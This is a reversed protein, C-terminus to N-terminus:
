LGHREFERELTGLNLEVWTRELFSGDTRKLRGRNFCLHKQGEELGDRTVQWSDGVQQRQNDDTVRERAVVMTAESPIDGKQVSRIVLEDPRFDLQELFPTAEGLSSPLDAMGSHDIRVGRPAEFTSVPM